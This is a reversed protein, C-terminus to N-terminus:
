APTAPASRLQRPLWDWLQEHVANAAANAPRTLFHGWDSGIEAESLVVLSGDAIATDVLPRSGLLVGAGAKAAEMATVFSDFRHSWVARAPEGAAIFWEAWMPRAGAVSLLPADRWDGGRAVNPSAVPTLREETLRVARRGAFEGTGFRIDLAADDIHYDSPRHITELDLLLHPLQSSLASLRPALMLTGFSIPTRLVVRQRGRRAFLEATTSGIAAFASQIHPLYAAGEPTIQVGRALRIFLPAKLREELSKVHLSVAAQSLGLEGAAATFSALRAAAEFSRLWDLPPLLSAASM